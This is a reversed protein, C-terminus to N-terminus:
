GHRARAEWTVGSATGGARRHAGGPTTTRGDGRGMDGSGRRRAGESGRRTRTAPTKRTRGLQARVTEGPTNHEIVLAPMDSPYINEELYEANIRSNYPYETRETTMENAGGNTSGPRGCRM